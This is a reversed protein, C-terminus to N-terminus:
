EVDGEREKETNKHKRRKKMWWDPLKRKGSKLDRHMQLMSQISEETLAREKLLSFIEEDTRGNKLAPRVTYAQMTRLCKEFEETTM